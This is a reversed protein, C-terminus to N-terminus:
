QITKTRRMNWEICTVHATKRKANANFKCNVIAAAGRLESLVHKASSKCASDDATTNRGVLCGGGRGLRRLLLLALVSLAVCVVFRQCDGCMFLADPSTVAM